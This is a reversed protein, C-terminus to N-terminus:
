NARFYGLDALRNRVVNMEEQTFLDHWHKNDWIMAEMTLDLRGLLYLNTFGEHLKNDHILRRAADLGGYDQIMRLFYTANYDCEEKATRYINLMAEDFSTVPNGM